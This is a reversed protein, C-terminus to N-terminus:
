RLWHKSICARLSLKARHIIVWFNSPTLNLEKCIHASDEEDMYKMSFVISWHSPLKKMCDQLIKELEENELFNAEEIGWPEPENKKKWHGNEEFFDTSEEAASLLEHTLVVTAKRRHFDTIKNKLISTLWTKETSNGHFGSLNKIAALFTDQVLDKCLEPDAIRKAAFRYLDDAYAKVWSEPHLKNNLM